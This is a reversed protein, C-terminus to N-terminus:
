RSRPHRRSGRAPEVLDGVFILAVANGLADLEFVDMHGDLVPEALQDPRGRAPKVRRARAVVLDRGVKPEPHAIGAVFRDVRDAAKLAHQDSAGFLMGLRDHGAEGMELDRLRHREAMMQHGIVLHQAAVNRAEGVRPRPHVFAREADAASAPM